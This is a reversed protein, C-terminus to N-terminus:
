LNDICEALLKDIAKIVKKDYCYADNKWQQKKGKGVKHSPWSIFNDGDYEVVSFLIAFGPDISLTGYYPRKENDSEYLRMTMGYDENMLEVYENDKRKAM